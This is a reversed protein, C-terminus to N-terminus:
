LQNLDNRLHAPLRGALLGADVLRAIAPDFGITAKVEAGLAREVDSATLARGPETVLVIGDYDFSHFGVGRRLAMYCPRTVMYASDTVTVTPNLGLDVVVHRTGYEIAQEELWGRCLQDTVILGLTNTVEIYTDLPPQVLGLATALDGHPHDILLVNHDHALALATMAAVTSTGVGGKVAFFGISRM